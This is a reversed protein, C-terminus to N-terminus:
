DTLDTKLSEVASVRKEFATIHLETQSFHYDTIQKMSSKNQNITNVMKCYEEQLLDNSSRM